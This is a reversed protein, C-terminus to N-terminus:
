AFRSDSADRAREVRRSRAHRRHGHQPRPAGRARPRALERRGRRRARQVARRARRLKPEHLLMRCLGLRQRMGRSFTAGARRAGGLPRLARAADRDAGRARARPLAPRLPPPERAADARPLRAARPRPLRDRRARRAGRARGGVARRARRPRAPADDEGLREPRHRSSGATAAARPRAQEPRAERRLAEYLGRATSWASWDIQGYLHSTSCRRSGLFVVSIVGNMTFFAADLRRLDGPRM